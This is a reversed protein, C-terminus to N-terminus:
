LSHRCALRWLFGTTTLTSWHILASHEVQEYLLSTTTRSLLSELELTASLRPEVEPLVEETEGPHPASTVKDHLSKDTDRAVEKPHQDETDRLRAESTMKEQQPCKDADRAVEKPLM